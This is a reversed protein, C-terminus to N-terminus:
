HGLVLSVREVRGNMRVICEYMGPPMGSADWSFSHEGASIEGSFIRAVETGLINVMSVEGVGSEPSTFTITTSQSLPNPYSTLSNGLPLMPGVGASGVMEAIPRRFVGSDTGAFLYDGVAILTNVNTDAGLGNNMQVWSGGNNISLFVGSRLRDGGNSLGAFLVSSTATSGCAVVSSVVSYRQESSVMTQLGSSCSTWTNGSDTSLLVGESATTALLVKRSGVRETASLRTTFATLGTISWNNGDDLSRYVGKSTAAVLDNGIMLINYVIPHGSMGAQSLVWTTGSDISVFLGANTGAFIKAPSENQRVVSLAYVYFNPVVTEGFPSWTKGNDKTRYVEGLTGAFVTTDLSAISMVSNGTLGDINGGIDHWTAGTDNSQLLRPDQTGVYVKLSRGEPGNTDGIALVDVQQGKATVQVWQARANSLGSFAIILIASLLLLKRKM